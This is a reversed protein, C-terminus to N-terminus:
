RRGVQSENPMVGRYTQVPQFGTEQPQERWGCLCSAQAANAKRQPVSCQDVAPVQVLAVMGFRAFHANIDCNQVGAQRIPDKSAVRGTPEM